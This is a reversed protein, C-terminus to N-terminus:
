GDLVETVLLGDPLPRHSLGAYSGDKIYRLPKGTEIEEIAHAMLGPLVALLAFAVVQDASLELDFGLCALCGDINLPITAKGTTEVFHRHLLLYFRSARGDLGLEAAVAFLEVARFDSGKHTPHGFGPVRGGEATVEALIARATEEDSLGTADQLAFARELLEFSDEPSVTNQGAALLGGAVAPVLQPNGSAIYRTAAVTSAVFGHDLLSNLIADILRAERDDPLRGVITLFAGQAYSLSRIIAAHSYGRIIVSGDSVDSITTEFESM